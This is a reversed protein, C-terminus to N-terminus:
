EYLMIGAGFRGTVGNGGRSSFFHHQNCCTCLGSIEINKEPVGAAKLLYQNTYWLDFIPNGTNENHKIFGESTGFNQMVADTVESGVEYCCTGISPGIGAIIHAPNSGFTTKMKNVMAGAMNNITGRWGAHAAGIVKNEPDFFLLPVCDAGMVFLCVETDQTVMGDTAQLANNKHLAGLSRQKKTLVEINTGHVQNAMVFYDLPIDMASALLHRNELVHLSFDDTGYGMNLGKYPPKSVGGERTSVFHEIEGYEAFSSFQYIITQGREIAHM